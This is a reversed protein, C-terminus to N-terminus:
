DDAVENLLASQLWGGYVSQIGALLFEGESTRVINWCETFSRVTPEGSLVYGSPSLEFNIMRANVQVEFLHGDELEICSVPILQAIAPDYVIDFNQGFDRQFIKLQTQYYPPM